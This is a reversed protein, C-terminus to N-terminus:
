LDRQQNLRPVGAAAELVRRHTVIRGDVRWRNTERREKKKKKKRKKPNRRRRPARFRRRMNDRMRLKRNASRSILDSRFILKREAGKKLKDLKFGGGTCAHTNQMHGPEEGPDGCSIDHILLRTFGRRMEQALRGPSRRPRPNSSSPRTGVQTPPAEDVDAEHTPSMSAIREPSETNVATILRRRRSQGVQGM